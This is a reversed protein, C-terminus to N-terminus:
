GASAPAKSVAQELRGPLRPSWERFAASLVPRGMRELRASYEAASTVTLTVVDGSRGVAHTINDRLNGSQRRPAEGHRSAPGSVNLRSKVDAVIEGGAAAAEATVARIVADMPDGDM